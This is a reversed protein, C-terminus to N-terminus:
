LGALFNACHQILYCCACCSFQAVAYGNVVIHKVGNTHLHQAGSLVRQAVVFNIPLAQCRTFRVQLYAELAQEDVKGDPTFPTVVAVVAEGIVSESEGEDHHIISGNAQATM